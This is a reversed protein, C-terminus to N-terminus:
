DRAWKENYDCVDYIMTFWMAVNHVYGLCAYLVVKSAGCATAYSRHNHLYLVVVLSGSHM